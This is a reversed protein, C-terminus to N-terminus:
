RDRGADRRRRPIASAPVIEIREGRALAEAIRRAECARCRITLGHGLNRTMVWVEQGCRDCWHGRESGPRAPTPLDRVTWCALVHEEPM